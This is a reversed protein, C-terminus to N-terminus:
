TLVKFVSTSFPEVHVATAHPDTSGLGVAFARPFHASTHLITFPFRTLIGSGPSPSQWEKSHNARYRLHVRIRRLFDPTSNEKRSSLRVGHFRSLRLYPRQERLVDRNRRHELRKRRSKFIRPFSNSKRAPDYRYGCCTEL